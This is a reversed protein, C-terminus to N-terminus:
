LDSFLGSSILQFSFDALSLCTVNQLGLNTYASLLYQDATIPTNTAVQPFSLMGPWGRIEAM